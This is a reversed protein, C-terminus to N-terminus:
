NMFIRETYFSYYDWKLSTHRFCRHILNHLLSPIGIIILYLPGFIRSQKSHGLEHKLMNNNERPMFIYNGLSVGGMLSNSIVILSDEKKHIIINRWIIAIICLAVIHQPLQWIYYLIKKM